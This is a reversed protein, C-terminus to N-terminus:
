STMTGGGTQRWNRPYGRAVRWKETEKEVGDFHRARWGGDADGKFDINGFSWSLFGEARAGDPADLLGVAVDLLEPRDDEAFFVTASCTSCFFRLAGARTVSAYYALSGIVPDKSDISAKLEHKSKPVPTDGNAASLHKIDFYAWYWLDIGGQLRCSDCGCFITSLKHTEPDVNWPLDEEEINSYDGRHLVLDVGKCKCRIPVSDGTRKEFGILGNAPPWDAPLEDRPDANEPEHKFRRCKSDDANADQLWVSAGGDITDGVYGQGTFRIPTVESNTLTGTLAALPSGPENLIEWFMPTSCSPCFLLNVRPTFSYAKLKSVDVNARPEPWRVDSTYLAGTVHRCSWCHCIPAPLPLKSKPVETTFTNAKCLCHSTLTVTSDDPSPM